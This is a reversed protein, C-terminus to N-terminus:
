EKSEPTKQASKLMAVVGQYINAIRGEANAADRKPPTQGVYNVKTKGFEIALTFPNAGPQKGTKAPLKDLENKALLDALAELQKATLKGNDKPTAKERFVSASTWTGDPQISYEYGTFGAFGGQLQKIKLPHTLKGDKLYDDAHLATTLATFAILTSLTRM